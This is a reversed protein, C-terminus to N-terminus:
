TRNMLLKLFWTQPRIWTTHFSYFVETCAFFFFFPLVFAFYDVNHLVYLTHCLITYLPIHDDYVGMRNLGHSYHGRLDGEVLVDALSNAHSAKTGVALM